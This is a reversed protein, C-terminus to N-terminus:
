ILASLIELTNLQSCYVANFYCKSPIHYTRIQVQHHEFMSRKWWIRFEVFTKLAKNDFAFIHFFGQEVVSKMHASLWLDCVFMELSIWTPRDASSCQFDLLCQWQNHLENNAVGLLVELSRRQEWNSNSCGPMRQLVWRVRGRTHSIVWDSGM